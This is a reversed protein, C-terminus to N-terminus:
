VAPEELELLLVGLSFIESNLLPQSIRPLAPKSFRVLEPWTMRRSSSVIVASNACSYTCGLPPSATACPPICTVGLPFATMPQPVTGSILSNASSPM